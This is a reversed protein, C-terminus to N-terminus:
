FAGLRHDTTGLALSWAFFLCLLAVGGAVWQHQVDGGPRRPARGVIVGLVFGVVFGTLHAVIDTREDGTGLWTLMIVAGVVPSLRSAWSHMLMRRATWMYAGVLGLAAFVATSAGISTHSARQVIVNMANGGVGGALILAWAYGPGIERALLTGFVAGFGINVLVHAIDVHLTLATVTRWWDGARVVGVDLRGAGTWDIGFSYNVQLSFYLLLAVAWVLAGIMAGPRPEVHKHRLPRPRNELQYLRWQERANAAEHEPVMVRWGFVGRELEHDINM